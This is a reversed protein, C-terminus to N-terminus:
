AVSRRNDSIINAQANLAAGATGVQEDSAGFIAGFKDVQAAQHIQGVQYLGINGVQM